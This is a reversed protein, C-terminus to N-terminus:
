VLPITYISLGKPVTQSSIQQNSLILNSNTVYDPSIYYTLIGNNDLTFFRRKWGQMIRGKKTLFGAKVTFTKNEM